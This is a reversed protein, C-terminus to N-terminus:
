ARSVKEGKRSMVLQLNEILVENNDNAPTIELEIRVASGRVNLPVVLGEFVDNPIVVPASAYTGRDTRVTVTITPSGTGYRRGSVKLALYRVLGTPNGEDEFGSIYRAGRGPARPFIIGTNRYLKGEGSVVIRSSQTTAAGRVFGDFATWEQTRLDYILFQRGDPSSRGSSIIYRDGSITASRISGMSQMYDGVAESLLVANSGTFLYVGPANLNNGGFTIVGEDTRALTQAARNGTITQVQRLAYNEPSSGTLMWVSGSLFFVLVDEWSVMGQVFGSNNLWSEGADDGSIRFTNDSPRASTHDNLESFYVTRGRKVWFRRGKYVTSYSATPTVTATLDTTVPDDFPGDLLWTRGDGDPGATGRPAYGMLTGGGIGIGNVWLPWEEEGVGMTAVHKIILNGSGDLAFTTSSPPEIAIHFIKGSSMQVILGRPTEIYHVSRIVGEASFDHVLEAAVPMYLHGDRTLHFNYMETPTDLQRRSSIRDTLGPRSIGRFQNVVYGEVSV